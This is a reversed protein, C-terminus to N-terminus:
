RWDIVRGGVPIRKWVIPTSLILDTAASGAGERACSIQEAAVGDSFNLVGDLSIFMYPSKATRNEVDSRGSANFARYYDITGGAEIAAMQKSKFDKILGARQADDFPAHILRMEDIVSRHDQMLAGWQNPYIVNTGNRLQVAIVHDTTNRIRVHIFFYGDGARDYLAKEVEVTAMDAACIMHWQDVLQGAEVQEPLSQGAGPSKATEGSRMCATLGILGLVLVVGFVIFYKRM